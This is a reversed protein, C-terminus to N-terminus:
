HAINLLMYGIEYVFKPPKDVRNTLGIVFIDEAPIWIMNSQFGNIAGSKKLIKIDNKNEVEYGFGFGTEDGNNLKYPSLLLNTSEDNLLLKNEIASKWILLDSTTSYMSGAGDVWNLSFPLYIDPVFNNQDTINYGSVTKKYLKKSSGVFTGEMKLPQIIYHAIAESFTKSTVKEIIKALLIYNTNSYEYKEGPPFSYPTDLLFEVIEEYPLQQTYQDMLNEKYLFDKIGSTHSLLHEIKIGANSIKPNKFYASIDDSLSLKKEECLKLILVATFQKSISGIAYSFTPDSPVEFEYNAYGTSKDYIVEGKHYILLSIGPTSDYAKMERDAYTFISKNQCLLSHSLALALLVIVKKLNETIM